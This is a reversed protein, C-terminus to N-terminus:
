NAPKPTAFGVICKLQKSIQGALDKTIKVNDDETDDTAEDLADALELLWAADGLLLVLEKREQSAMYM